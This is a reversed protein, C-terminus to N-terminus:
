PCWRQPGAVGYVLYPCGGGAEASGQLALPADQACDRIRAGGLLLIGNRAGASPWYTVRSSNTMWTRSIRQNRTALFIERVLAFAPEDPETLLLLV